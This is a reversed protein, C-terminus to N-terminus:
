VIAGLSYRFDVKENFAWCLRPMASFLSLSSKKISDGPAGNSNPTLPSLKEPLSPKVSDGSKKEGSKESPAGPMTPSLFPAVPQAAPSAPAPSPSAPTTAPSPGSSPSSLAPTGAASNPTVQLPTSLVANADSLSLGAPSAVAVLEGAVHFREATPSVRTMAAKLVPDKILTSEQVLQLLKGGSGTEGQV